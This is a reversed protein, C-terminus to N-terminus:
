RNSTVSINDIYVKYLSQPSFGFIGPAGQKHSNKHKVELTWKAPEPASKPWVKARVIGSGDPLSDVRASLMYWTEPEMKFPATSKIREQNSNIELEQANGNLIIYYRQCVLGVTSMTRKSGDVRVEATITYDKDSPHGIFVTARQFFINDLTKAFVNSGDLDRVDFKGRAGIWPLPPFAFLPGPEYTDPETPKFDEFDIKVPLPQVIRGRFVGSFMGVSAKYAGASPKGATFTGSSDIAGDLLSKVKATPPVFQTFKADAAPITKVPLGNADIATISLNVNEGSRLLLDSPVVQLSAIPGPAPYIVTDSPLGATQTKPVIPNGFCYLGETTFVYVRGNWVAPAGIGRGKLQTRSLIIGKTETPRVVFLAGNQFPIYLKGDAYTPSAHLQDPALKLTWKTAGTNADVAILQGTSVTEYVTDGVLVPTSSVSGLKNRWVESAPDLAPPEGEIPTVKGNTRISVMRGKESSDLNEDGHIAIINGKHLVVTANMGGASVPFRWLSQGTRANICALSGDGNGTYFVRKGGIWAFIPRGFTNDKPAKGPSSSWVIAGTKKNFAYLRDMAPGDAGWNSTVGRVIVLDKEITPAGTRGNTFTLRGFAEMMAIRFVPKGDGTYALFEGASTMVYVNGTEADVTPSGITYRDYTIDSLFDNFGHEWLITGTETSACFLVEQLNPGTGRYGFGYVKNGAIVPTGGGRIPITWRHVPIGLGLKDPLAKERSVGSSEPGRWNLWGKVDAHGTLSLLCSAAILCNGLIRM